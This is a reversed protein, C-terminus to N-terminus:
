AAGAPHTRQNQNQHADTKEAASCSFDTGNIVLAVDVRLAGPSRAALVVGLRSDLHDGRDANEPWWIVGLSICVGRMCIRNGNQLNVTYTIPDGSKDEPEPLDIPIM